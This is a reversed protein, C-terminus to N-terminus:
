ALPLAQPIQRLEQPDTIASELAPPAFEAALAALGQTVHFFPRVM